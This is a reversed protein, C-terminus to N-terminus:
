AQARLPRAQVTTTGNPLEASFFAAMCANPASSISCPRSKSSARSRAAASRALLATVLEALREVLIEHEADRRVRVLQERRKGIEVGDVYRDPEAGADAAHDARAIRHLELRAHDAHHRLVGVHVPERELGATRHAILEQTVNASPM